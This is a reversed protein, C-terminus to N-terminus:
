PAAASRVGRDRRVKMEERLMFEVTAVTLEHRAAIFAYTRGREFMELSCTAVSHGELRGCEPCPVNRIAMARVLGAHDVGAMYDLSVEFIGALTLVTKFRLGDFHGRELQSITAPSLGTKEALKSQSFGHQERLRTIRWPLQRKVLDTLVEFYRV